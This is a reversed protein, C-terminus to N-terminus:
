RRRGSDRPSTKPTRKVGKAAFQDARRQHDPVLYRKKGDIVTTKMRLTSDGCKLCHVTGMLPEDAGGYVERL